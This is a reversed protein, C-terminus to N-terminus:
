NGLSVAMRRRTALLGFRDFNYALNRLGIKAEARMIGICRLVADLVVQAQRGFVHEGRARIKSKKRNAEQSRACLPGSRDGKRHIRDRLGRQALMQEIVLSRYASDGFVARSRNAGQLLDAMMQSDHVGADTVEFQRVFKHRVDVSIHNKYGFFNEGNKQVWRADTDKQRGQSPNRDFQEPREGAKIQQNDERSNRQRPVEVISADVIRGGEARYGQRELYRDFQRFLKKILGQKSLEERYHWITKEDPVPDGPGIGLFDQFSLRDRIQYETEHDSLNYLAQIVLAKWILVEDWPKRGSGNKREKDRVTSLIPRFDEWPVVGNLRALPNGHAKLEAMRIEYDFFGAQGAM